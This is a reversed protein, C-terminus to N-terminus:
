YRKIRKLVFLYIDDDKLQQTIQNACLSQFDFSTSTFSIPWKKVSDFNVMEWGWDAEMERIGKSDVINSPIGM